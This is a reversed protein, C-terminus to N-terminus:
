AKAEKLKLAVKTGRGNVEYTVTYRTNKEIGDKVVKAEGTKFISGDDGHLEWVPHGNSELNNVSTVSGTWTQKGKPQEPEQAPPEPQYANAKAEAHKEEAKQVIAAPTDKVTVPTDVVILPVEEDREDPLGLGCHKLVTRRTAKTHAKMIADALGSGEVMVWAGSQGNEGKKFYKVSVAGVDETIREGETVRVKVSYVTELALGESVVECKLKRNSALQAACSKNPYLSIAGTKENKLWNFPNMSPNLGLSDCISLVVHYLEDESIKSYDGHLTIARVADASVQTLGTKSNM